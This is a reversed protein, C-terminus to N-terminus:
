TSQPPGRAPLPAGVLAAIHAAAIPQLAQELPQLLNVSEVPRAVPLGAPLCLACDLTHQELETTQDGDSTIVVKMAGGAACVIEIKTPHIIPSAIAAGMMLM